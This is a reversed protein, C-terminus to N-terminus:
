GEAFCKTDSQILPLFMETEDFGVAFAFIASERVAVEFSSGLADSRGQLGRSKVFGVAGGDDHGVLRLPEDRCIRHEVATANQNRDVEFQGRNLM